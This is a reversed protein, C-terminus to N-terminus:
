FNAAQNSTELLKPTQMDVSKKKLTIKIAKKPGGMGKLVLALGDNQLHKLGKVVM